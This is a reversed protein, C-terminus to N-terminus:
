PARRDFTRRARLPRYRIQLKRADIWADGLAELVRQHESPQDFLDLRQRNTLALVHEGAQPAIGQRLASGLKQLM